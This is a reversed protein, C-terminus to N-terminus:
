SKKASIYLGDSVASGAKARPTFTKSEGGVTITVRCNIYSGGLGSLSLTPDTGLDAAVINSGQGFNVCKFWQYSINSQPISSLDNDFAISAVDGEYLTPVLSTSNNPSTTTTLSKGAFIPYYSGVPYKSWDFVYVKGLAESYTDPVTGKSSSTTVKCRLYYGEDEETIEYSNTKGGSNIDKFTGTKTYSYQWQYNVHNTGDPLNSVEATIKEGVVDMGSVSVSPAPLQTGNNGSSGNDGIGTTKGFWSGISDGTKSIQGSVQNGFALLAAGIVLAVLVVIVYEVTDSGDERWLRHRSPRRLLTKTPISM